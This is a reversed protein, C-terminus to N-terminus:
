YCIRFAPIPRFNYLPVPIIYLSASSGREEMFRQAQRMFCKASFVAPNFLGRVGRNVLVARIVPYLQALYHILLYAQGDKIQDAFYFFYLCVRFCFFLFQRYAKCIKM